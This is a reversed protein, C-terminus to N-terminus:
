TTIVEGWKDSLRQRYKPYNGWCSGQKSFTESHHKFNDANVVVCRLGKNKVQCCFDEVYLHLEDFVKDDFRFGKKRDIFLVCSDVSEVDRPESIEGAWVERRNSDAGVFGVAGIDSEGICKLANAVGDSSFEIDPHMFAIIDTSVSDIIQNYINAVPMGERGETFIHECKLGRLSTALNFDLTNQNMFISVATFEKETVGRNMRDRHAPMDKYDKSRNCALCWNDQGDKWFGYKCGHEGLGCGKQNFSEGDEVEHVFMGWKHLYANSPSGAQLEPQSWGPTGKGGDLNENLPLISGDKLKQTRFLSPNNSWWFGQCRLYEGDEETIKSMWQDWWHMAAEGENRMRRLYLYDCKGMHEVARHLWMKDVINPLHIFDSELHIQLDCDDVMKISNNTGWACGRDKDSNNVRWTVGYVEPLNHRLWEATDDTSGNNFIGIILPRYYCNSLFANICKELWNRRNSNTLISIGVPEM